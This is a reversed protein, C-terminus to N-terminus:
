GGWKGNRVNKLTFLKEEKDVKNYTSDVQKNIGKRM